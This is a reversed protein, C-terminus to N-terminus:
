GGGLKTHPAKARIRNAGRTQERAPRALTGNGGIPICQRSRERIQFDAVFFDGCQRGNVLSALELLFLDAGHVGLGEGADDNLEGSILLDVVAFGGSQFAKVTAQFFEAAPPIPM